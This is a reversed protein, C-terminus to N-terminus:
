FINMKKLHLNSTLAVLAHTRHSFKIKQDEPVEALTCKREPMYFIPDYGFGHIGKREDVMTGHLEGTATYFSGDPLYLVMACVFKASRQDMPISKLEKLLKQNNDDDTAGPGAYRASFVGPEGNLAHVSIGSDDALVPLNTAMSITKAKKLANGIFSLCDEEIDPLNPHDLLSTFQLKPNQKQFHACIESFKHKNKTAVLISSM